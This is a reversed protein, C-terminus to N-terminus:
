DVHLLIFEFTNAWGLCELSALDPCRFLDFNWVWLVAGRSAVMFVMVLWWGDCVM